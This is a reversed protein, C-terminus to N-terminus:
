PINTPPLGSCLWAGALCTVVLAVVIGVVVWDICPEPLPESM